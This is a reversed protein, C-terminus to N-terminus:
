AKTEQCLLRLEERHDTEGLIADRIDYHRRNFAGSGFGLYCKGTMVQYRARLFGTALKLFEREIAPTM